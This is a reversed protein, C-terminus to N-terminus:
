LISGVTQMLTLGLITLGLLTSDLLPHHLIFKEGDKLLHRFKLSHHL